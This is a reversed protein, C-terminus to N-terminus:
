RQRVSPRHSIIGGDVVGFFSFTFHSVLNIGLLANAATRALVGAGGARNGLRVALAYDVRRGANVALSALTDVREVGDIGRQISRAVTEM